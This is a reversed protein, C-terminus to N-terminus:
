SIGGCVESLLNSQLTSFSKGCESCKLETKNVQSTVSVPTKMTRWIGDLFISSLENFYTVVPERKSARFENNKVMM